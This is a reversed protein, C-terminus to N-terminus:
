IPRGHAHSSSSSAITTHSSYFVDHCMAPMDRDVCVDHHVNRANHSIEKVHAYVYAHNKMDYSSHSSNAM